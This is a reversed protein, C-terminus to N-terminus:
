VSRSPHQRFFTGRIRHARPAFRGTCRLLV